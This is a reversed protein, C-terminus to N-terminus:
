VRKRKDWVCDSSRKKSSSKRKTGHTVAVYPNLLIHPITLSNVVNAYDYFSIPGIVKWAVNHTKKEKCQIQNVSSFLLISLRSYEDEKRGVLVSFIVFM